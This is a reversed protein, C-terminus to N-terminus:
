VTPEQAYTGVPAWVTAGTEPCLYLRGKPAKEPASPSVVIRRRPKAANVRKTEEVAEHISRDFRQQIRNNM